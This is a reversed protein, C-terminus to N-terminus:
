RLAKRIRSWHEQRAKNLLRRNLAQRSIGLPSAAAQQKGNARKMAEAIIFDEIDKLTPFRGQIHPLIVTKQIMNRDSSLNKTGKLRMYERFMDASLSEEKCRALSDNVMSQLERINGPFEFHM